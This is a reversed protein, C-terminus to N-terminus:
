PLLRFGIREIKTEEGGERSDLCASGSDATESVSCGAPVIVSFEIPTLTYRGELLPASPGYLRLVVTFRGIPTPIWNNKGSDPVDHQLFLTLSGDDGYVLNNGWAGENYREISNARNRQDYISVSLLTYVPPLAGASFEICYRFNGNLPQGNQTSVSAELWRASYSM